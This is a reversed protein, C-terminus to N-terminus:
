GQIVERAVEAVHEATFGYEAFVRAAPASAGFRDIGIAQGDLGVYKQWSVTSGAEVSVRKRIAKPLVSEQYAADQKAFLEMCPMSVLRSKYGQAALIDAAQYLLEVESGSGMLILDPTGQPDRLVYGGRAAQKSTDPLQPLDQRTLAMVAPAQLGLAALYCAATEKADAPRFVFTNPTARLSAIQEIPQHTPGDEGVGISDHTLVYLVPLQMLASLRLAPKLYDAFVLFTACFPRLGGHLALGNCIAAMAFERVGFHINAGEPTESSFYAKGKLETKNSPALDASGGFLNPLYGALKNLMEGGLTRTAKKGEAMFLSEDSLLAAPLEGGHWAQWQAYIEPYAKAYAALLANYDNEYQQFRPQMAAFHDYVAQPVDFAEASWGLSEKYAKINDEGLPEGHASAKGEKATGHAIKTHVIILSPKEKQAKAAAIARGIADIDEGDAVDQVFFGYAEYRKAVNEGFAIDTGGEITICNSDYLAILKNLKLHGALSAAESAVGEMMCGDGMLTYTYHDVVAFGERNFTAALHKEAMAMGVAMTFGQGLPGTTAEVGVTHGFEPHGPTRSGWQRFNQLDDITLGYGFLHLLSYLLMSAHGASLIFRDRDEFGPNKPNQKMQSLLAYAMPAAGIPLGPHGSKAKQVAEASLVRIASIAQKQIQEM